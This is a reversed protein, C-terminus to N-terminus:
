PQSYVNWSTIKPAQSSAYWSVWLFYEYPPGVPSYAAPPAPQFPNLFYTQQESASLGWRILPTQGVLGVLIETFSVHISLTGSTAGFPVSQCVIPANSGAFRNLALTQGFTLSVAYMTPPMAAYGSSYQYANAVDQVCINLTEGMTACTFGVQVEYSWKGYNVGGITTRIPYSPSAPGAIGAGYWSFQNFCRYIGPGTFTGPPQSYQYLQHAQIGFAPQTGDAIFLSWVAGDTSQNGTIFGDARTMRDQFALNPAVTTPSATMTSKVAAAATVLGQPNVAIPSAALSGQALFRASPRVESGVLPWYSLNQLNPGPQIGPVPPGLDRLREVGLDRRM